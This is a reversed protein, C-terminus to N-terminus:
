EVRLYICTHSAIFHHAYFYVSAHGKVFHNTHDSLTQTTFAVQVEHAILHPVRFPDIERAFAVVEAIVVAASLPVQKSVLSEAETLEELEVFRHVFPLSKKSNEGTILLVQGQAVLFVFQNHILLAGSDEDEVEVCVFGKLVITDAGFPRGVM